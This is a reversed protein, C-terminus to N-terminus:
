TMELGLLCRGHLFTAGGPALHLALTCAVLILSAFGSQLSLQLEEGDVPFRKVLQHNFWCLEFVMTILWM